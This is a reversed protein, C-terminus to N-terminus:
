MIACESTDMAASCTGSIDLDSAAYLRDFPRLRGRGPHSKRHDDSLTRDDWICVLLLSWIASGNRDSM